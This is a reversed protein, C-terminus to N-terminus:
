SFGQAALSAALRPGALADYMALFAPTATYASAHYRGFVRALQRKATHPPGIIPPADMAVVTHPGQVALRGALALPEVRACELALLRLGEGNREFICIGTERHATWALDLGAFVTM